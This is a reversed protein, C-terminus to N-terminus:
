GESSSFGVWRVLRKICVVESKAPKHERFRDVRGLVFARGNVPKSGGMTFRRNRGAEPAALVVDGNPLRAVRRPTAGLLERLDSPSVRIDQLSVEQKAPEILIARM